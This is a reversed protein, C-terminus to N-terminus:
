ERVSHWSCRARPGQAPSALVGPAQPSLPVTAQRCPGRGEGDERHRHTPFVLTNLSWTGRVTFWLYREKLWVAWAGDGLVRPTM